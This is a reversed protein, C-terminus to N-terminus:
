GQAETEMSFLSLQTGVAPLAAPMAQPLLQLVVLGSKTFGVQRWGARRFCRGPDRKKRVQTTDVFTVMGLESPTGWQWRTAAVAQTILTSSLVASENRFLSCLWAGRWAHKVYEPYPWSSVWLADGSGTLLVLCRGPPTFQAAGVTKRSYHRDALAAGRPDARHSHQWYMADQPWDVSVSPAIFM